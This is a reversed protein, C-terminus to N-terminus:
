FAALAVDRHESNLATALLEDAAGLRAVAALATSEVKARRAVGGLAREDTLRALAIGRVEDAATSKAIVSVRRVDSLLGAARAAEPNSADLAMALLRDAATDRVGRDTDASTVRGLVVPDVVKALVATRVEADPDHEALAALEVADGLEPIAQLRVVPDSHKWRPQPKLRDLIGM